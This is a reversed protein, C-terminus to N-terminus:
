LEIIFCPDFCGNEFTGGRLHYGRPNCIIRTSGLAYDSSSHAHGHIWVNPGCEEILATLDSAYAASSSSGLFRLALSRRSPLHHTVVVTSGGFSIGLNQELFRKSRYFREITQIPKLKSYDDKFGAKVRPARIKKYDTMTEAAEIMAQHRQEDGFLAFDTWLSCGLFRVEGILLEEDELFHVNSGEAAARVENLLKTWHHKYFEHNGAVYVVELGPFAKKAWEVGRIGLNIDGALVVVNADTAQVEFPHEFELHLDSLVLIKVPDSEISRPRRTALVYSFHM